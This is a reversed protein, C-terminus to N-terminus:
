STLQIYKPRKKRLIFLLLMGLLAGTSAITLGTTFSDGGLFAAIGLSGKKEKEEGNKYRVIEKLKKIRIVGKKIGIITYVEIIGEMSESAIASGGMKLVSVFYRGKADKALLVTKDSGRSSAAYRQNNEVMVTDAANRKWGMDYHYDYHLFSYTFGPFKDLNSFMFQRNIHSPDVVDAKAAVSSLSVLAVLM